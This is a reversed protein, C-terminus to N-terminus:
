PFTRKEYWGDAMCGIDQPENGSLGISTVWISVRSWAPWRTTTPTVDSSITMSFDTGGTPDVPLTLAVIPSYCSNCTSTSYQFTVSTVAVSSSSNEWCRVTVANFTSKGVVFVQNPVAVFGITSKMVSGPVGFLRVPITSVLTPDGSTSASPMPAEYSIGDAHAHLTLCIFMVGVFALLCLFSLIKRKM